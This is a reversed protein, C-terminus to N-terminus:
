ANKRKQLHIKQDKISLTLAYTNDKSYLSSGGKRVYYELDITQSKEDISYNTLPKYFSVLDSFSIIEQSPELSDTFCNALYSPYYFLAKASEGEKLVLGTYYSSPELTYCYKYPCGEDKLYKKFSFVSTDTYIYKNDGKSYTGKLNSFVDTGNRKLNEFSIDEDSFYDYQSDARYADFNFLIEQEKAIGSASPVKTYDNSCSFLLSFPLILFLHKKMLLEKKRVNLIVRAELQTLLYSM